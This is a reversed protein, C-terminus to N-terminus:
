TWAVLTGTGEACIPKSSSAEPLMHDTNFKGSFLIKPIERQGM